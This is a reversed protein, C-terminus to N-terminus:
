HAGYPNANANIGECNQITEQNAERLHFDKHVSQGREFVVTQGCIADDRTAGQVWLSYHGARVHELKYHGAANSVARVIAGNKVNDAGVVAGQVSGHDDTIVGEMSGTRLQNALPIAALLVLILGFLAYKMWHPM